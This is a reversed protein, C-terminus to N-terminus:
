EYVKVVSYRLVKGKFMYGAQLVDAVKGHMKEDNCPEQTIAEHVNPDFDEGLAPIEEMGKKAFTDMFQDICMQIGKSINDNGSDQAADYARQLNDLVPLALKIAEAMGDSFLSDIEGQTRRRFNDFEAQLRLLSDHNEDCKAQLEELMEEAQVRAKTEEMLASASAKAAKKLEEYTVNETDPEKAKDKKDKEM